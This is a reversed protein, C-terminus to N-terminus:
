DGSDSSLEEIQILLAKESNKFIDLEAQIRNIEKALSIIKKQTSELVTQFAANKIDSREVHQDTEIKESSLNPSPTSNEEASEGKVLEANEIPLFYHKPVGGKGGRSSLIGDKEMQRLTKSAIWETCGSLQELVGQVPIEAGPGQEALHGPLNEKIQKEFERAENRSIRTQTSEEELDAAHISEQDASAANNIPAANNLQTTLRASGDNPYM